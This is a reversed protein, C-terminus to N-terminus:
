RNKRQTHESPGVCEQCTNFAHRLVGGFRSFMKRELSFSYTVPVKPSDYAFRSFQM